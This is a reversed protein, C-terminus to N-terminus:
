VMFYALDTSKITSCKWNYMYYNIFGNGQVFELEEFIDSYNMINLCDVVDIQDYYMMNIAYQVLLKLDTANNFYYYMFGKKLKNNSDIILTDMIYWSIFDTILEDKKVIYCKIIKNDMFHNIFQEITFCRSIKYNLLHRNLLKCCQICDNINLIQLGFSDENYPKFENKVETMFKCNLLKQINIYKHYYNVTVINNPLKLSSTYIASYINKFKIQRIIESILNPALRKNRFQKDICLFNIEFQNIISGHINTYVNIGFICAILKNQYKIGVCIIDLNNSQKIYWNIIKKTYIFRFNGDESENYNNFLFYYLEDSLLDINYWSLNYPLDNPIKKTTNLDIYSIQHSIIINNECLDVDIPQKSWFNHM